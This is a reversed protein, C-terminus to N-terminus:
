PNFDKPNHHWKTKYTSVFMKSFSEEMKMCSCTGGFHQYGGVLNCPPVINLVEVQFNVVM